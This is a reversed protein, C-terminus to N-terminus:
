GHCNSTTLQAVTSMSWGVNQAKAVDEPKSSRGTGRRQRTEWRSQAPNKHATRHSSLHPPQQPRSGGPRQPKRVGHATTALDAKTQADAGIAHRKKAAHNTTALGAKTQANARPGPPNPRLRNHHPHGLCIGASRPDRYLVEVPDHGPSVSNPQPGRQKRARGTGLGRPCLGKFEV